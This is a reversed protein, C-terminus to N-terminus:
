NSWRIGAADMLAKLHLEAVWQANGESDEEDDDVFVLFRSAVTIGNMVDNYQVILDHAVDWDSL